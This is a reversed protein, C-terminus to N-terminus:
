FNILSKHNSTLNIAIVILQQLLASYKGIVVVVNVKELIFLNKNEKMIQYLIKTGDTQRYTHKIYTHIYTQRDTNQIWM